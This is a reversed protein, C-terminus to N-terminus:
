GWYRISAKKRRKTKSWSAGLTTGVANSAVREGLVARVYNEEIKISVPSLDKEYYNDVPSLIIV